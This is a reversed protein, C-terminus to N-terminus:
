MEVLMNRVKMQSRILLVRKKNRDIHDYMSLSLSGSLRRESGEVSDNMNRGVIM